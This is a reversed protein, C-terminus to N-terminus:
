RGNSLEHEIDDETIPRRYSAAPVKVDIRAGVTPSPGSGYTM